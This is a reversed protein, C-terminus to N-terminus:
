PDTPSNDDGAPKGRSRAERWEHILHVMAYTAFLVLGGFVVLSVM